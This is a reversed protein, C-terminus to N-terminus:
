PTVYTNNHGFENNVGADVILGGRTTNGTIVSGAENATAQIGANPAGGVDLVNASVVNTGNVPAPQSDLFIGVAGLPSTSTITNATVTNQGSQGAIIIGTTTSLASTVVMRCGSVRSATSDYLHVGYQVITEGVCGEVSATGAVQVGRDVSYVHCGEIRLSSAFVADVGILPAGGTPVRYVGQLRCRSIARNYQAGSSRILATLTETAELPDISAAVITVDRASADALSVVETGYMLGPAGTPVIIAIDALVANVPCNFVTRSEDDGTIITQVGGAGRVVCGSPVVFPPALGPGYSGARIAIDGGGAAAALAAEIGSGDGPDLFDCDALTDGALANGVVFKAVSTGSGVGGGELAAIRAGHSGATSDDGLGLQLGMQLLYEIIKGLLRTSTRHPEGGFPIRDQNTTGLSDPDLSPLETLGPSPM